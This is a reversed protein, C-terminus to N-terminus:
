FPVVVLLNLKGINIFCVTGTFDVMADLTIGLDLAQYSGHLKAYAKVMLATWFENPDDSRLFILSGDRTPLYDDVVVDVWNGYQYFRGIFLKSEGVLLITPYM